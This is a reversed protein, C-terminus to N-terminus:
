LVGRELSLSHWITARQKRKLLPSSPAFAVFILSILSLIVRARERAHIYLAPVYYCYLACSVRLYIPISCQQQQHHHHLLPPLAVAAAAAVIPGSSRVCDTLAREDPSRNACAPWQGGVVRALSIERSRSERKEKENNDSVNNNVSAREIYANNRIHITGARTLEM